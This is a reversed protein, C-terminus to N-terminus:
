LAVRLRQEMGNAVHSCLGGYLYSRRGGGQGLIPNDLLVIGLDTFTQKWVVGRSAVRM